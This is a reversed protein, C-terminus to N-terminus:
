QAEIDNCLQSSAEDTLYEAKMAGLREMISKVTHPEDISLFQAASEASGIYPGAKGYDMSTAVSQAFERLSVDTGDFHYLASFFHPNREVHVAGCRVCHLERRQGIGRLTYSYRWPHDNYIHCGIWGRIKWYV